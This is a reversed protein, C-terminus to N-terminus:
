TIPPRLPPRPAASSAAIDRLLLPAADAPISSPGRLLDVLLPSAHLCDCTCTNDSCCDPVPGQAPEAVPEAHCPPGADVSTEPPPMRHEASVPGLGGAVLALVLLLNLAARFCNM